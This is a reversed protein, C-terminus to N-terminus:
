MVGKSKLYATFLVGLCSMAASAVTTVAGIVSLVIVQGRHSKLLEKVDAELRDLRAEVACHDKCQEEM